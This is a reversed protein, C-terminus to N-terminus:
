GLQHKSYAKDTIKDKKRIALLLALISIIKLDIFFAISMSSIAGTFVVMFIIKSTVSIKKYRFIHTMLFRAIFGIFAFAGILGYSVFMYLYDNDFSNHYVNNFELYSRGSGFIIFIPNSHIIADIVGGGFSSGLM